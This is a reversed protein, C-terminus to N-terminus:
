TRRHASPPAGTMADITRLAHKPSSMLLVATQQIGGVVSPRNVPAELGNCSKARALGIESMRTGGAVLYGPTVRAEFNEV